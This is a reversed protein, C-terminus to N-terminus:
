NWNDSTNYFNCVMVLREKKKNFNILCFSCLMGHKLFSSFFLTASDQLSGRKFFKFSVVKGRVPLSSM